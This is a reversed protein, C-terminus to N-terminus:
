MARSIENEYYRKLSMTVYPPRKWNSFALDFELNQKQLWDWGMTADSVYFSSDICQRSKRWCRKNTLSNVKNVGMTLKACIYDLLHVELTLKAAPVILNRRLFDGIHTLTPPFNFLKHIQSILSSTDLQTQIHIFSWTRTVPWRFKRVQLILFFIYCVKIQRTKSFKRRIKCRSWFINRGIAM